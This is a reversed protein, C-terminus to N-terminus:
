TDARATSEQVSFPRDAEQRGAGMKRMRFPKGIDSGSGRM